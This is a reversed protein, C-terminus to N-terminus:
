KIMRGKRDFHQIVQTGDAKNMTRTKLKGNDWYIYEDRWLLTGDLYKEFRELQRKNNYYGIYYAKRQEAEEQSIPETPVFPIKYSKWSGFYIPSNITQLPQQKIEAKITKFSCGFLSVILGTALLVRTLVLKVLKYLRLNNYNINM